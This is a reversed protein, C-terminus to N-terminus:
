LFLFQSTDIGPMPHKAEPKLLELMLRTVLKDRTSRGVLQGLRRDTELCEVEELSAIHDAVNVNTARAALNPDEVKLIAHTAEHVTTLSREGTNRLYRVALVTGGQVVDEPTKWARGTVAKGAEHRKLTVKFSDQGLVASPLAEGFPHTIRGVTYSELGRESIPL